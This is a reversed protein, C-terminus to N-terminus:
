AQLQDGFNNDIWALRHVIDEVIARVDALSSQVHQLQRELQEREVVDETNQLQTTLERHHEEMSDLVFEQQDMQEELDDHEREICRLCAM